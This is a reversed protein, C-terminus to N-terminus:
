TTPPPQDIPVAQQHKYDLDEVLVSNSNIRVIKYRKMIVDGEGPVYIDEGQICFVRRVGGRVPMANGYFKLTIPPPPPKVPPAPPPAPPPPPEPGIMRKAPKVVVIKPEPLKPKPAEVAGFDFLSREVREIKVTALREVLELRLTPDAKANEESPKLSPRFDRTAARNPNMPDRKASTVARPALPTARAERKALMPQAAKPAPQSSATEGGSSSLVNTYFLYGGVLTLGALLVKKWPEAGWTMELKPLKM